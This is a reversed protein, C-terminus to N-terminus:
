GRRRGKGRGKGGGRRGGRRRGGGGGRGGRRGGRGGRRSKGRGCLKDTIREMKGQMKEAMPSDALAAVNIGAEEACEAAAAMMTGEHKEKLEQGCKCLEEKGERMASGCGQGKVHEKRCKRVAKFVARHRKGKGKGKGRCMPPGFDDDDDDGMDGGDDDGDSLGFKAELRAKLESVATEIEASACEGAQEASGDDPCFLGVHDGLKEMMGGRKEEIRNKVEEMMHKEMEEEQDDDIDMFDFPSPGGKPPGGGGFPPPGHGHGHGGFPPPGGFPLRGGFPPGRGRGGRGRGKGRGKGGGHGHGHGGPPGEFLKQLIQTPAPLNKDAACAQLDPLVQDIIKEKMCDKMARMAEMPDSCGAATFCEGIRQRTEAGPGGEPPGDAGEEMEPPKNKELADDVCGMFSGM